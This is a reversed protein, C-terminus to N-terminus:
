EDGKNETLRSHVAVHQVPNVGQFAIHPILHAKRTDGHQRGISIHEDLQVCSANSAMM